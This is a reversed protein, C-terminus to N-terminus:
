IIQLQVGEQLFIIKKLCFPYFFFGWYQMFTTNNWQKHHGTLSTTGRGSRDLLFLTTEIMHCQEHPKAQRVFHSLSGHWFFAVM